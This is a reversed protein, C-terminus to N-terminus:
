TDDQERCAWVDRALGTIDDLLAQPLEGKQLYVALELCRFSLAQKLLEAV